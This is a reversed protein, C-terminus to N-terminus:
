ERVDLRTNKLAGRLQDIGASTIQSGRINISIHRFNVKDGLQQLGTDTLGAANESGTWGLELHNLLPTESLYGFADDTLAPSSLRLTYLKPLEALTSFGTGTILPSFLSLQNLRNLRWLHKLGRDSVRTKKGIELQNLTLISCVHKMGTDSVNDSNLALRTLELNTILALTDDGVPTDAVDLDTLAHMEALKRFAAPAINPCNRLRLTKLRRLSAIAEFGRETMPSDYISLRTLNPFKKLHEASEDSLRSVSLSELPALSLAALFEGNAQTARVDLERLQKLGSLQRLGADTLKNGHLHLDRLAILPLFHQLSGDTMTPYSSIHLVELDTRASLPAFDDDSFGEGSHHLHLKKLTSVAAVDQLLEGTMKAQGNVHIENLGGILRLKRSVDRPPVSNLRVRIDTGRESEFKGVAQEVISRAQEEADFAAKAEAMENASAERVVRFGIYAAADGAEYYSRIASRCTLPSTFWSGGRIVRWDGDENFTEENLPDIARPTPVGYRPQKYKAYATDLYQDQCWEWVNGHMDHVGWTNAPYSGVPATYIHPDGPDKDIHVIWQILVRDPHAKELEVNGINALRHIDKYSEGWSFYTDRGARCVYEWEAETPLRYRVKEKESLWRCFAQADQWSIGTVPHSDQQSFGPSKWTFEPKQRFAFKARRDQEPEHPDFGVIGEGSKEATTQHGTAEVFQRFQRVTVETTALYFPRSLRVPHLPQEDSGDYNVHEKYFGGPGIGRGGRIYSGAPIFQLSQGISNTVAPRLSPQQALVPWPLVVCFFATLGCLAIAASIQIRDKMFVVSSAQYLFREDPPNL